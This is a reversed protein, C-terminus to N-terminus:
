NGLLTEFDYACSRSRVQQIAEEWEDEGDFVAGDGESTERRASSSACLIMANMESRRSSDENLLRSINGTSVGQFLGKNQMQRNSLNTCCRWRLLPLSRTTRMSVSLDKAMDSLM